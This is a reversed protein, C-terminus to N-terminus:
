IIFRLSRLKTQLLLELSRQSVSANVLSKDLCRAFSRRTKLNTSNFTAVLHNVRASAIPSPPNLQAQSHLYNPYYGFDPREVVVSLNWYRGVKVLTGLHKVLPKEENLLRKYLSNVHRRYCDSENEMVLWNRLGRQDKLASGVLEKIRLFVITLNLLNSYFIHHRTGTALCTESFAFCDQYIVAFLSAIVLM